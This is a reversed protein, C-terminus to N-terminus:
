RMSRRCVRLLTIPVFPGVAPLAPDIIASVPAAYAQRDEGRGNASRGRTGLESAGGACGGSRLKAMVSGDGPEDAVSVATRPPPQKQHRSATKRPRFPTM